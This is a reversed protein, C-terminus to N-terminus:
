ALSPEPQPRRAAPEPQAPIAVAPRDWHMVLRRTLPCLVWHAVPASRQDAGPPAMHAFHFTM